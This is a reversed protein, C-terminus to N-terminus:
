RILPCHDEDLLRAAEEAPIERVLKYYDCPKRSDAKAKVVFPHFPRVVRGDEQVM